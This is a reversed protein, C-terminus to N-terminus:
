GQTQAHSSGAPVTRRWCAFLARRAARARGWLGACRAERLTGDDARNERVQRRRGQRLRCEEVLVQLEAEPVYVLGGIGIRPSSMWSCGFVRRPEDLEHGVLQLHGRSIADAANHVGSDAATGLPLEVVNRSSALREFTCTTTAPPYKRAGYGFVSAAM